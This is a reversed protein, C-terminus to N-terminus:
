LEKEVIETYSDKYLKELNPCDLKHFIDIADRMMQKGEEKNGIKAQFYGKAYLFTVKSQVDSENNLNKTIIEIFKEAEDLKNLGSCRNLTNILIKIVRKSLSPYYGFEKIMENILSILLNTKIQMSSFHVLFLEYRSWYSVSFLYDSLKKITLDSVLFNSDLKNILIAIVISNLAHFKQHKGSIALKKEQNHLVLLEQIDQKNYAYELKKALQEFFPQKYNKLMITFEELSVAIADLAHLLKTITIDSLGNEFKSLQAVSFYDSTAEELTIGRSIRLEKFLKGM